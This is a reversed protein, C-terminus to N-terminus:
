YCKNSDTSFFTNNDNNLAVNQTAEHSFEYKIKQGFIHLGFKPGVNTVCEDVKKVWGSCVNM